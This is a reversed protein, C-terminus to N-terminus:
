YFTFCRAGKDILELKTYSITESNMRSRKVYDILKLLM